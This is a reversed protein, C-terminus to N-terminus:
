RPERGSSGAPRAKGDPSKGRRIAGLNRVCWRILALDVFVLYALGWYKLYDIGMFLEIGAHFGIGALAYLPGFRPVLLVTWFGLEFVLAAVSALQCLAPQGAMWLALPLDSALGRELLNAQLVEGGAWSWGTNRIKSLGATLYSSALLLKILVLPWVPTSRPPMSGPEPQRIRRLAALWVSPRCRRLDPAMLLILLIFPIINTKRRVYGLELIQGFYVFYAALAIALLLRARVGLAAALLGAVLVAGALGFGLPGLEPIEVLGLLPARRLYSPTLDLQADFAARRLLFDLQEPFHIVTQLLLGTCFLWIFLGLNALETRAQFWGDIRELWRSM